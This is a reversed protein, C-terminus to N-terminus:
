RNQPGRWAAGVNESPPRRPAKRKQAVAARAACLDATLRMDAETYTFTRREETQNRRELIARCLLPLEQVRIGYKAILALDARVKYETRLRNDSVCEFTFVRFGLDHTFGSLIYQM